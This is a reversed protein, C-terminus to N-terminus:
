PACAALIILLGPPLRWSAASTTSRRSLGTSVRLYIAARKEKGM